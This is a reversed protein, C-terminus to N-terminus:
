SKSYCETFKTPSVSNKRLFVIEENTQEYLYFKKETKSKTIYYKPKGEVIYTLILKQNKPINKLIM